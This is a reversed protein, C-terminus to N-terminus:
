QVSGVLARFFDLFLGLAAVVFSVILEAFKLLFSLLMRLIDALEM